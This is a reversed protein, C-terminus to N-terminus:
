FHVEIKDKILILINKSINKIDIYKKIDTNNKINSIDKEEVLFDTLYEVIETEDDVHLDEVYLSM